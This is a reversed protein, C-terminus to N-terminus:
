GRRHRLSECVISEASDDFRKDVIEWVVGGVLEGVFLGM